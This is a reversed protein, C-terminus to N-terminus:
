RRPSAKKSQRYHNYKGNELPIKSSCRDHHDLPRRQIKWVYQHLSHHHHYQYRHCAHRRRRPSFVHCLASCSAPLRLRDDLQRRKRYAKVLRRRKAKVLRGARHDRIGRGLMEPDRQPSYSSAGGKRIQPRGKRCTPTTIVMKPAEWYCRRCNQFTMRERRWCFRPIASM